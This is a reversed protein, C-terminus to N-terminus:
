EASLRPIFTTECYVTYTPRQPHALKDLILNVAIRGQENSNAEVTALPPYQRQSEPLNDFGVVAIDNPITIDLAKLTLYLQIAEKDSACIFADPPQKMNSIQRILEDIVVMDSKGSFNDLICNDTNLPLGLDALTERFASWRQHLSHCYYPYGIFGFNKRGKEHLYCIAKSLSKKSEPLVIDVKDSHLHRTYFTDLFVAPMPLSVVEQYYDHDYVNFSIIGSISNNYVSAPLYPRSHATVIHIAMLYGNTRLESEIGSLLANIYEINELRYCFLITKEPEKPAAAPISDDSNVLNDIYNRIIVSTKESVGPRGNLVKSVTSRSINLERSIQEVSFGEYVKKM